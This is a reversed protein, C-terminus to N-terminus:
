VPFGDCFGTCEFAGDCCQYDYVIGGVESDCYYCNAYADAYGDAYSDGYGDGYVDGYACGSLLSAAAAAAPACRLFTRRSVPSLERGSTSEDRSAM